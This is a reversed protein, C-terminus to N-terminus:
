LSDPPPNSSLGQPQVWGECDYEAVHQFNYNLERRVDGDKDCFKVSLTEGDNEVRLYQVTSPGNNRSIRVGQLTPISFRVFVELCNTIKM